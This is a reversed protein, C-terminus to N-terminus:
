EHFAISAGIWTQNKNYDVGMMKGKSVRLLNNVLIPEDIWLFMMRVEAKAFGDPTKILPAYNVKKQLIYNQPDKISSLIEKTVDIIVGSGAFSYLPKLVYNELDDPYHNLDNLFFCSPAFKSKIYPLSYKSIRFFWNPHGAWEVQLDDKFNFNYDLKKNELEDFIVRNYIREIPIELNNKKYFLRNGRQIIGSICVSDIGLYEKTLYFDIRTKQKDPNIELLIVNEKNKDKIVAQSFLELYKEENYNNYYNTFPKAISFHEKIKNGLFAQFAYLSPFGQLEILQPILEGNDNEAIAFDIQLFIPHNDENPLNYKEPVAKLSAATFEKTRLQAAISESAEILKNNLNSDIFLPTENIRFDVEGNTTKWVDKIFKSYKEDSFEKNFKERIEKIM